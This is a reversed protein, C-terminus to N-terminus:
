KNEQMCLVDPLQDEEEFVQFLEARKHDSFSQCNWQLVTLTLNKNKNKRGM